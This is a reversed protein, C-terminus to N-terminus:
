IVNQKVKEITKSIGIDLPTKPTWGTIDTFVKSDSNLWFIEGARKPKTDWYITGEWSLEKAIIDAYDKIKIPLDPGLTLSKGSLKDKHEIVAMWANVLDDIFLFNRYPESYGLHVVKNNLMQSIIQETVFFNNDLRGYTNTQRLAVYDLGFSRKAYELYKECAYKAVAYPANPNPLTNENFAIPTKPVGHNKVEDSIPQWGFVEMTSSFFFFPITNLKLCSEILNVTGVYNVSSFVTQEYFSKEVETKAALHIVVDPAISNVENEVEKHSTLDSKLHVVEGIEQLKPSIFQGVFGSSGTLLIKV